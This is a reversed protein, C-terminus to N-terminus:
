ALPAPPRVDSQAGGFLEAVLLAGGVGLVLVALDYIAFIALVAIWPLGEAPTEGSALGTVVALGQSLILSAVAIGFSWEILRRRRAERHALRAAITLLGGGLVILPFLEGPILYDMRFSGSRATGIASTLLMFAIPLLVLITGILALVRTLPSRQNM